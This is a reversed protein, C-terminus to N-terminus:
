PPCFDGTKVAQPHQLALLCRLVLAAGRPHSIASLVLRMSPARLVRLGREAAAAFISQLVACTCADFCSDQARYRWAALFQMCALYM